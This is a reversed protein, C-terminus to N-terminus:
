HSYKQPVVSQYDVGIFFGNKYYAGASTSVILSPCTNKRIFTLNAGTDTVGINRNVIITTPSVVQVIFLSDTSGDLGIIEDGVKLTGTVSTLTITDSYANLDAVGSLGIDSATTVTLATNSKANAASLTSYFYLIEESGFRSDKDGTILSLVITPPDTLDPTDADFVFNVKGIVNSTAGTVYMNLYPLLNATNTNQTLKVSRVKDNITVSVPDDKLIRSGDVFVHNAFKKIQDQIISQLQTLERAQVPTGPKFLIRYFNKTSDFDDYYPNTTLNVAM